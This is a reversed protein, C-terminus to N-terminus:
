TDADALVLCNSELVQRTVWLGRNQLCSVLSCGVHQPVIADIHAAARYNISAADDLLVDLESLEMRTKQQSKRDIEDIVDLISQAQQVVALTEAVFSWASNVSGDLQCRRVDYLLLNLREADIITSRDVALALNTKCDVVLTRWELLQRVGRLEPAVVTSMWLRGVADEVDQWRQEVLATRLVLTLEATIKLDNGEESLVAVVRSREVALELRTTQVSNKDRGVLAGEFLALSLEATCELVDRRLAVGDELKKSSFGFAAAEDVAKDISSVKLRVGMGKALHRNVSEIREHLKRAAHLCEKFSPNRRTIHQWAANYPNLLLADAQELAAALKTEDVQM